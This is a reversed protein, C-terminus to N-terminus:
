CKGSPFHLIQPWSLGSYFFLADLDHRRKRLSHLSLKELAVTYTFRVHPAFRYFCVSAFKQQIREFKNADTSTISNWVVSAYELKSRVSAFYLIYLCELSSCRYTVSTILGLLKICDSFVYDVHEHFHLKSHFFIGLDKVSSTRTIAVYCLQYDYSLFNTKRTYTM